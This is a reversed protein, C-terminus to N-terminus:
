SFLEIIEDFNQSIKEFEFMEMNNKLEDSLKILENINKNRGFELLENALLEIKDMDFYKKQNQISEFYKDNFELILEDSIIEKAIKLNTKQETLKQNLTNKVKYNEVEIHKVFKILENILPKRQIPKKLYGDFMKRLLDVEQHLTSATLAVIPIHATTYLSKIVKTADYGNIGPMRIDMFIFDPMQLKALEIAMEGNEAELFVLNYNELYSKVLDRNQKVDDVILIKSGTFDISDVEWNYENDIEIIENNYKLNTFHITFNSGENVKSELSIKGNMLETLRKTIALGLGTGGYKRTDQGSQQSFSEFIRNYDDQTIGIGTDVISLDLDLETETINLINASVKVSGNHTFKIANGVLNLIIQRIRIEDLLITTPLNGDLEVEFKLGKEKVKQEFLLRIDEIITRLDIPDLSIDLKGAEIKSLDLIDNILSLLTKGSNLITSLYNKQKSDNTTNLMVESFGLIHNMPTRIEHSMNALFESKARNAANAKEKELILNTELESRRKLNALIQAFVFLLKREKESYEHFERVSDFGVFGLLKDKDIIPLTILSKIGQPELIGRLSELGDNPLNLVNPIYFEEGKQHKEVWQPFFAMPVNQLNHIEPEIDYNCWEFTNSTSEEDFDYDFIYARDANVFRGIEALSQNISFEIEALNLNIYKSAINMLINQLESLNELDLEAKKIQNINRVLVIVQKNIFNSIRVEYHNSFNELSLHYQIPQISQGKLVLQINKLLDKSIYEPLLESASKGIMETLTFPTEVDRGSRVEQFVGNSDMILILDPIASLISEIYDKQEALQLQILKRETIDRLNAVVYGQNNINVYKATVEVPTSSNDIINHNNGEIVIFDQSKLLNIHEVWKNKDKFLPEYDWVYHDKVKDQHIGLRQSATRNIYFMSGDEKAVQIADSSYDIINQLLRLDDEAKKIKNAEISLSVIDSISRTFVMEDNNWNRFEQTNEVCIVGVVIGNLRIPIDMMSKINIPILYSDKFENTIKNEYVNDAIINNGKLVNDFYIPYDSQKLKITQQHRFENREYLDICDIYNHNDENKLLWISARCVNLGEALSETISYIFEEFTNYNTFPTTSLTTLIKNFRELEIKKNQAIEAKIKSYSIDSHSGSMRYPKNNEDFLAAGRAAIWTYNGNKNKLRFEIDYNPIEKNLYKNISNEVLNIDDPHLIAKFSEFDNNIENEEYGLMKKWRPSFYVENTLLNWDWIGDNSGQIALEYREKIEVLKNQIEIIYHSIDLLNSQDINFEIGIDKTNNLTLLLTKISEERLKKEEILKQTIDYYEADVIDFANQKLDKEREYNLFSDNIATIFNQLSENQELVEENLYKKIQRQLSRNLKELKFDKNTM